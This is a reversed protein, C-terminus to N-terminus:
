WWKAKDNKNIKIMTLEARSKSYYRKTQLHRVWVISSFNNAKNCKKSIREFSKNSIQIASSNRIKWWIVKCLMIKQSEKIKQQVATAALQCQSRSATLTELFYLTLVLLVLNTRINQCKWWCKSYNDRIM